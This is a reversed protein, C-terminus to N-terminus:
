VFTNIFTVIDINEVAPGSLLLNQIYCKQKRRSFSLIINGRCYQAAYAQASAYDLCDLDQLIPGSEYSFNVDNLACLTGFVGNLFQLLILLLITIFKKNRM